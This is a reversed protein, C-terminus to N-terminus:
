ELARELFEVIRVVLGKQVLARDVGARDRCLPLGNAEIENDCADLFVFHGEGHELTVLEAGPIGEAYHRAHHEFPLFDNDAAGVILVPIEVVSLSEASYGPGVAPDLAVVARVRADLYSETAAVAIPRERAEPTAYSCGRDGNADDSQCYRAMREPDFRPGALAIVTNGGSSHGVAAIEDATLRGALEPLELVRTLAFSLDLPRQWLRLVAGPDVSTPGYLWSEEFHSVGIVVFGREALARTLWSYNRASGLAGHSLLVIPLPEESQAIEAEWAYSGVLGFSMPREESGAAAPYFLDVWVPRDDRSADELKLHRLGVPRELAAATSACLLIPLFISVLATAVDARNM